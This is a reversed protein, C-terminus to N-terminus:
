LHAKKIEDLSKAMLELKEFAENDISQTINVKKVLQNLNTGLKNLQYLLLSDCPTFSRNEKKTDLNNKSNLLKRVYASMSLGETKALAEVKEYDLPTLNTKIQKYNSM